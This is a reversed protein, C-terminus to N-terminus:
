KNLQKCFRKIPFLEESGAQQTNNMAIIEASQSLSYSRRPLAYSPQVAVM